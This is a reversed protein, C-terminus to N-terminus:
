VRFATEDCLREMQLVTCNKALLLKDVNQKCSTLRFPWYESHNLVADRIKVFLTNGIFDRSQPIFTLTRLKTGSEIIKPIACFPLDMCRLSLRSLDSLGRVISVIDDVALDQLYKLEVDELHRFKLM